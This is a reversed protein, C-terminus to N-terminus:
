TAASATMPPLPASYVWATILSSVDSTTYRQAHAVFAATTVLGWRNAATWDRLMPFFAAGLVARLAHLTLAGRKYVRDDFMLERGPDGLVLDQPLVALRRHHEQAWSEASRGGSIESWLWESYCAFGEHLWIDAWSAATLSNGFWQHALEHAVLRENQWGAGAHNAGFTSLTQAELPIELQDATIVASYQDFPYPGFLESFRAMMEDQRAFASGVGVALGRPHVIEVPGAPTSVYRGIHLVALYPAMPQAQLYRWTTRGSRKERGALVGNAIVRYGDAVTIAFRYTAKDDPRDNCPFWSPAGCPQAAVVVGDTLEEWGVPGFVSPMPRPKGAYDIEVSLREGLAAPAALVIRLKSERHSFRAPPRGNVKVRTVSLGALDLVVRDLPELAEIALVARASLHNTAIKYDLDLAYSRVGFRRNGHGPVYPDAAPM